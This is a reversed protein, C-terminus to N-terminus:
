RTSYGHNIRIRLGEGVGPSKISFSMRQEDAHLADTKQKFVQVASEAMEVSYSPAFRFEDPRYVRVNEIAAGSQM